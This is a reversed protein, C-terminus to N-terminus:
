FQRLLRDIYDLEVPPRNPQNRRSRLEELIERARQQESEQPIEVGEIAESTGQGLQRGLPDPGQGQGPRAGVNGSGRDQDQSFMQMFRDAMTQLGQQMHDLSRTQPRIAQGPNDRKLADRADRMEGEARGLPGPIDGLMESLERMLDGLEQRLQEQDQADGQNNQNQSQESGEGAKQEKSRQYSRDLLEEQDQLMRELSRMMRSADQMQGDMAQDFPQMQLNELIDQLRALLEQAADRAGNRALERAQDLLDQLDQQRLQQANPPPQNQAEGSNLREQMQEALAELFNDMASQLDDILREIEEQAADEALAEMLAEQAARLDREALSLEGEEIRLATEWMLNQIGPISDPGDDHILRRSMVYLSLAVVTDHFFTEPHQVIVGLEQMIPLRDKPDMTLRKRLEVLQQAVPHRFDREPLVSRRAESRGEQGLADKARLEIEVALGAWPHPTLDHYSAGEQLPKAAGTVIIELEIPKAELDDLRRILARIETLGYDDRGEYPIRLSNRETPSPTETLDIIPPLDDIIELPWAAIPDGNQEISLTQNKGGSPGTLLEKSVTESIQYARESLPDFESRIAGLALVPQSNSQVQALIESGVPVELTDTKAPDLFRPALGTYAPPNVWIDMRDPREQAFAVNPSIAKALRAPWDQYGAVLGVVVLLAVAFRIALPDAVPLTSRPAKVRTRALQSKLSDRHREWLEASNRDGRVTAPIDELGTLPRHSLGSDQELRRKAQAVRPPRFRWLGRFLTTLGAVLLLCLALVHLWWPLTPLVNFLVLAAFIGVVCLFPLLAPLLRELFLWLWALSLRLKIAPGLHASRRARLPAKGKDRQAM